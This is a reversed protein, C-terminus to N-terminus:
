HVVAKIGAKKLAQILGGEAGRFFHWEAGDIRGAKILWADKAIQKEISSTLKVNFGAKAEYSIGDLVRDAYRPGLPTKFAGGPKVGLGGLYKALRVEGWEGLSTTALPVLERSAAPAIAKTSAQELAVAARVASERTAYTSFKSSARAAQSSAINALVRDRTAQGVV